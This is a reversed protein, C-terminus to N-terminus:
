GERSESPSMEVETMEGDASIRLMRITREADELRNQCIRVLRVGEEYLDLAKELDTQESDLAAVVQDLRAMADELKMTEDIKRENKKAKTTM